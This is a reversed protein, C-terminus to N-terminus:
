PPSGRTDVMLMSVSADSRRKIPKDSALGGSGPPEPPQSLRRKLLQKNHWRCLCWYYFSAATLAMFIQPLFTSSSFSVAGSIGALDGMATSTLGM